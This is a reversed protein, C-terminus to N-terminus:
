SQDSSPTKAPSDLRTFIQNMIYYLMDQKTNMIKLEKLIAVLTEDTNNKENITMTMSVPSPKNTTINRNDNDNAWSIHKKTVNSNDNSNNTSPSIDNNLEIIQNQLENEEMKLEEKEIKIYKIGNPLKELTKQQAVSIMQQMKGDEMQTNKKPYTSTIEQLEYNRQAIVQKIVNDLDSLPKDGITNDIFGPKEPVPLTM